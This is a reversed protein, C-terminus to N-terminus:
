KIGRERDIEALDFKTKEAIYGWEWKDPDRSSLQATQRVLRAISARAMAREGLRYRTLALAREAVLLNFYKDLDLPDAEVLLRKLREAQSQARLAAAYDGANYHVDALWAYANALETRHAESNPELKQARTFWEIASEFLEAAEVSSGNLNFNVIGMNLDGFGREMISRVTEPEMAGLKAASGRYRSYWTGASVYDERMEHVRGVWYESQAHSFVLDANSPDAELLLATTQYAESAMRGALELDGDERNTEDEVMAHLVRARRELSGAPLGALDGQGTYYDLARRNVGEMVDLRGVGRLESRLDTLMYEVLGEAEARQREAEDRSQIAVITMIAMALAAAAAILTVAMVRRLKRQADRQVLSDLPVGAIGAVV